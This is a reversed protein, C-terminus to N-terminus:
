REVWVGGLMVRDIQRTNRIDGLPDATLVVLDALAGPRLAGLTDARLLEAGRITAARLADLPTFGAHVLLEMELHVGAGPMLLQNSADTGTVVRGGLAAFRAVFWDQRRRAGRFDAFDSATWGARAIMGPVNWNTRASDPVSALGPRHYVSTDDLRAFTDHLGLTPVLTVGTLALTAAVHALSTTDAWLWAEEFATWGAFFGEAHAAMLRGTTDISEPIGSLHEISAVGARAATVADTLGLHAAVPLRRARAQRVIEVLLDPPVRTYVKVWSAGGRTNADLATAISLSDRIVRADPYTPPAVDLMAVARFVRPSPTRATVAALTDSLLAGSHLDRVATVGWTLSARLGWPQLHTHVDILGPIVWRGTLSEIAAGRPVPLADRSGVAIVRGDRLLIVSNPITRGSVVDIVTAGTLALMGDGPPPGSACGVVVLLALAFRSLTSAILGDEEETVGEEKRGGEEETGGGAEERSGEEESCGEEKTSGGEEKTGGGEEETGGGEEERGGDEETGGGEEERGGDEETGGGEEACGEEERRGEAEPPGEPGSAEEAEPDPRHRAGARSDRVGVPQDGEDDAQPGVPWPLGAAFRRAHPSRPTMRHIRRGM